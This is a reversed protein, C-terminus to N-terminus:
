DRSRPRKQGRYDTSRDMGDDFRPKRDFMALLLLVGLALLTGLGAIQWFGLGAALGIAGSLWMGAGTTLGHVEGKAFLITGAALFAIGATVAEVARIPDFRFLEGEFMPAHAIEVTLIGFTAAAVCVLVHTRLGAPRKSVEREYGIAAGFAAALLLRAAIVPFSVYTSHGFEEVLAEM